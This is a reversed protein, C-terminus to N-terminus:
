FKEALIGPIPPAPVPEFDIGTAIVCVLNGPYLAALTWTGTDQNVFFAMESTYQKQQQLEVQMGNGQFLPLQEAPIIITQMVVQMQGCYQLARFFVQPPTPPVPLTPPEPAIEQQPTAGEQAFSVTSFMLCAILLGKAIKIM